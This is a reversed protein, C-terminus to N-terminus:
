LKCKEFSNIVIALSFIRSCSILIAKDNLVIQILKRIFM